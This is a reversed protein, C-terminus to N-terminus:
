FAGDEARAQPGSVGCIVTPTHMHVVSPTSRRLCRCVEPVANTRTEEPMSSIFIPSLDRNFIQSTYVSRHPSQMSHGSVQFRRLPFDGVCQIPCPTRKLPTPSCSTGLPTRVEFSYSEMTGLISEWDRKFIQIRPLLHSTPPQRGRDKAIRRLKACEVEESRRLEDDTPVCQMLKCVQSGFASYDGGELQRTFVQL